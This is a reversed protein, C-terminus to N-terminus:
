VLGHTGCPTWTSNLCKVLIKGLSWTNKLPSLKQCNPLSGWGFWVQLGCPTCQSSWTYDLSYVQFELSELYRSKAPVPHLGPITWRRVMYLNDTVSDTVSRSIQSLWEETVWIQTVWGDTVSGPSLQSAETHCKEYDYAIYNGKKSILLAVSSGSTQKTQLKWIQRSITVINPIWNAVSCEDRYLFPSSGCLLTVSSNCLPTFSSIFDADSLIPNGKKSVMVYNGFFSIIYWRICMKRPLLLISTVHNISREENLFICFVPFFAASKLKHITISAREVTRSLTWLRNGYKKTHFCHWSMGAWWRSHKDFTISELTM